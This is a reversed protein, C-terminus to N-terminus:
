FDLHATSVVERLESLLYNKPDELVEVLKCNGGYLNVRKVSQEAAIRVVVNDNDYWILQKKYLSIMKIALDTNVASSNLKAIANYGACALKMASFPDECVVVTDNPKDPSFLMEKPENAYAPHIIRNWKPYVEPDYIEFGSILSGELEIDGTGRPIYWQQGASTVVRRLGFWDRAEMSSMVEPDDFYCMPKDTSCVTDLKALFPVCRTYYRDLCDCFVQADKTKLPDPISKRMAPPLISEAAKIAGSLGCNFCHCLIMKGDDSVKIYLRSKRDPGAPCNEHDVRKQGGHMIGSDIAHQRAAQLTDFDLKDRSTM